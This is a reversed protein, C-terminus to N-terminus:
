RNVEFIKKRVQEDEGEDVDEDGEDEDEVRVGEDTRLVDIYRVSLCSYACILM